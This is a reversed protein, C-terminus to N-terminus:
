KGNIKALMTSMKEGMRGNADHLITFNRILNDEVRKLSENIKSFEDKMEHYHENTALRLKDDLTNLDPKKGGNLIGFKKLFAPIYEKGFLFFILLLILIQTFDFTM